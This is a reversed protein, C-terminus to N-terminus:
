GAIEVLRPWNLLSDPLYVPESLFALQTPRVFRAVDRDIQVLGALAVQTCYLGHATGLDLGSNFPLGLVGSAGAAIQAREGQSAGRVRYVGIARVDPALAFETWTSAVVGGAFAGDPPLAHVIRLGAGTAAVIGVHSFRSHARAALVASSEVSLGSRFVVDGLLLMGGLRLARAGDVPPVPAARVALLSAGAVVLLARRRPSM